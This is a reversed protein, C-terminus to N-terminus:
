NKCPNIKRISLNRSKWTYKLECVKWFKEVIKINRIVNRTIYLSNEFIQRTELKQPSKIKCFDVTSTKAPIFDWPNWLWKLWSILDGRYEIRMFILRKLTVSFKTQGSDIGFFRKLSKLRIQYKIQAYYPVM